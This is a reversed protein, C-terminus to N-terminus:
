EGHTDTLIAPDASLINLIPYERAVKRRFVVMLDHRKIWQQNWLEPVSRVPGTEIFRIDAAYLAESNQPIAIGDRLKGAMRMSLPGYFSCLVDITEHRFLDDHGNGTGTHTIAPNDAAIDVIGFACWDVTPEPHKPPIPQWRPRVYSGAIGTIGAIVGQFLNELDDGSLPPTEVAPSLYGGTASTNAM